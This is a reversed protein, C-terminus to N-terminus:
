EHAYDQVLGYNTYMDQLKGSKQLESLVLDAVTVIAPTDSPCAVCYNVAGPSVTSARFVYPMYPVLTDPNVRTEAQYKQIYLAGMVGVEARGEMVAEILDPYSAYKVITLNASPRAAVYSELLAAAPTNQVCGARIGQLVLRQTTVATIFYCPDRYYPKSYLYKSQAGEPMMAIAVDIAGRAMKPGVTMNDVTVYKVSNGKPIDPLLRQALIDGLEAELGTEAFGMGPIDDRVGVRLVGREQITRVEASSLANPEVRSLSAILLALLGAAVALIAIRWPRGESGSLTIHLQRKEGPRKPRHKFLRNKM